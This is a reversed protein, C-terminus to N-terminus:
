SSATKGYSNGSPAKDRGKEAIKIKAGPSERRSYIILTRVLSKNFKGKDAEDLLLDIAARLTFPKSRYPRESILADLTDVVGILQSYKNLTKIGLPYGSGDLREHHQYSSFNYKKHDKGFYYHLLVYGILPHTSLIHREYVTIPTRKDLISLPIRSKGIDHFLSLLMAIGPEYKNKLSHDFSIKGSLVAIVMIHHYTYPTLKKMYALESLIKEPMKIHSIYRIIKQNIEPPYLINEYRKDKFTRILDKILWTGKIPVYRIKDSLGAINKLTKTNIIDGAKVLLKKDISYLDKELKM